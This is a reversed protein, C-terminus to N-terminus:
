NRTKWKICIFSYSWCSYLIINLAKYTYSLTERPSTLVRKLPDSFINIVSVSFFYFLAGAVWWFAPELTLEVYGDKALLLYYYLLCYATILLGFAMQTYKHREFVGHQFHEYGYILLLFLAASLILTRPKFYASLIYHFVASFFAIQVPLLLNYVWSNYKYHAKVYIGTMEVLAVFFVFAWLLHLRKDKQKAMCYLGIAGCTMEAGTYITLYNTM